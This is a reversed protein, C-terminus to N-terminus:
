NKWMYAAHEDITELEYDSEFVYDAHLQSGRQYISGNVDLKGQPSTTGIGVNGVGDICVRENTASGATYSTLGTHFALKGSTNPGIAYIRSSNDVGLNALVLYQSEPEGEGLKLSVTATGGGSNQIHAMVDGNSNSKVAHFFSDPETTGIGVNGGTLITMKPTAVAVTAGTGFNIPGGSNILNMTGTGDRESRLVSAIGGNEDM